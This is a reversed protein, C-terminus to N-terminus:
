AECAKCESAEKYVSEGKIPSETKLYYLSKIGSKWAEIHVENIYKAAKVIDNKSQPLSFFLNISQAQDIWKQRQAAQRIIAYQNIERATAFVEKETQSLFKLNKVSGRDQNIQEWVESTDKGLELLKALLAPNKKIFNGKAGKQVFLNATIPEIGQSVGGSLVSNSMTPAIALTATNRRGTGATEKCEGYEKALDISAKDALKRMSQFFSANLTMAEFSEFAINEAQLLTHWGLVGLGLLRHNEAFRVANELGPLQSASKIFGTLVGDLFYICLEIFTKGTKQCKWNKWENYKAANISSLCCVFTEKETVPAMIESCLNSQTIRNRYVNPCNTNSNDTFMVYPEGTEVRNTMLKNWLAREKGNENNIREMTENDIIVANHFSKTLCRRNLDGTPKRIDLFEEIDGHNLPLYSAVAGRRTAGQRTGDIASELTKLFPVIGDSYGGRSIASGKPRLSLFSSGVGGGYKTLMVMEQIHRMIDYTDDLPTGSFCSIQLNKTGSNALVPSAPCLWNKWIMEFFVSELEPKNLDSSIVKSVRKYADKPTEGKQLYGGELMKLSEETLWEPAEDKQKLIELVTM